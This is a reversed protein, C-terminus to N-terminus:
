KEVHLATATVGVEATPTDPDNSHDSVSVVQVGDLTVTWPKDQKFFATLFPELADQGAKMRVTLTLTCSDGLPRTGQPKCREVHDDLIDADIGAGCYQCVNIM